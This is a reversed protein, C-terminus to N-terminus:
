RVLRLEKAPGLEGAAGGAVPLGVPTLTFTGSTPTAIFSPDPDIGGIVYGAANPTFLHFDLNSSFVNGPPNPPYVAWTNSLASGNCKGGVTLIAFLQAANVLPCGNQSVPNNASPLFNFNIGNWIVDFSTFVGASTDYTFSGSTPNPAGGAFGIHYTVSTPSHVTLVTGAPSPVGAVNAVIPWDGDALTPPVQIAVQYLGAFGSALAAGYVTAPVNNITVTPLVAVSYTKDVPVATGSPPVPNTPGFGTGWLILVDGPKAPVTPLSAFTGNKVALSYNQYTAVAQSNPWLFFAPSYQSSTVTIPASTGSDNAVTVQMPGLGVDPVLINLQTPTIYYLYAAKGGISVSVGDFTTPFQGNVIFKSWDDTTAALNAGQITAWSNPSVGPLFDAGNVVGNASITPNGAGGGSGPLVKRIRAHGTDAIFLNGASDVTVGRPTLVSASTAPNGDGVGAGAFPTGNGAFTTITGAPNVIRIRNNQVDAIYLNGASDVALGQQDNALSFGLRASIAPGGDGSFGATGTGAVTSITGATNVKRVRNNGADSIYINGARDVALGLPFNLAAKTAPGGDGSFGFAGGAVTSVIGATNVKLVSSANTAFYVNGSSDVALADVSINHAVTSINGTTDVKRVRSNGSDQIYVNGAGDVAVGYPLFLAASTALGGDGSFGMTGNGAFTSIVGATNVKRIRNANVDTIFINGARDVAMGYALSLGASTALGGDGFFGVTGNGAVTSIVGQGSCLSLAALGCVALRSVTRM